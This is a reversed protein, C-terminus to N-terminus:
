ILISVKMHYIPEFYDLLDEKKPKPPTPKESVKQRLYAGVLQSMKIAAEHDRKGKLVNKIDQKIRNTMGEAQKKRQDQRTQEACCSVRSQPNVGNEPCIKNILRALLPLVLSAITGVM